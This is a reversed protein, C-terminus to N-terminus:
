LMAEPRGYSINYYISANFLVTDQPVIGIARRLSNQSVTRIDQGDILVAGAAVDYFRFLIRSITSKGAGSPGVVAM